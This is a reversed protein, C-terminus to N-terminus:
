KVDYESWDKPQRHPETLVRCASLRVFESGFRTFNLLPKLATQLFVSMLTGKQFSTGSIHQRQGRSFMAM